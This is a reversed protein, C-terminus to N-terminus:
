RGGGAGGDLTVAVLPQAPLRGLTVPKMPDDVVRRDGCVGAAWFAAFIVSVSIAAAVAPYCLLMMIGRTIKGGGIKVVLVLTPWFCAQRWCDWPPSWGIWSGTNGADWGILCGTQHLRGREGLDELRQDQRGSIGAGAAISRDAGISVCLVWAKRDKDPCRRTEGARDWRYCGMAMGLVCLVWHGAACAGVMFGDSCIRTNDLVCGGETADGAPCNRIGGGVLTTGILTGLLLSIWEFRLADRQGLRGGVEGCLVGPRRLVMWVTQVYSRVRGRYQRHVGRFGRARGSGRRTGCEPCRATGEVGLRLVLDYGCVPCPVECAAIKTPEEMHSLRYELPRYGLREKRLEPVWM